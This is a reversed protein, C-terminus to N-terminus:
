MEVRRELGVPYPPIEWREEAEWGMLDSGGRNASKGTERLLDIAIPRVGNRAIASELALLTTQLTRQLPSTLIHTIKSMYPFRHRTDLAELIGHPALQPDILNKCRFIEAKSIKGPHQVATLRKANHNVESQAHRIFHIYVKPKSTIRAM